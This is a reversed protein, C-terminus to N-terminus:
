LKVADALWKQAINGNFQGRVITSFRFRKSFSARFLILMGGVKKARQDCDRKKFNKKSNRIAPFFLFDNFGQLRQCFIKPM